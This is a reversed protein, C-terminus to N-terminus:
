WVMEVMEVKEGDEGGKGRSKLASLEDDCEGNLTGQKPSLDSAHNTFKVKEHRGFVERPFGVIGGLEKWSTCLIQLATDKSRAERRGKHAEAL